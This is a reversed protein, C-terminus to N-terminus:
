LLLSEGCIIDLACATIHEYINVDECGSDVKELLKQVLIKDQENFVDIFRELIKFHFTPTIIKRRQFWKSGYSILLGTGLWPEIFDYTRAKSTTKSNMINEVDKPDTVVLDMHNFVGWLVLNSGYISPFTM